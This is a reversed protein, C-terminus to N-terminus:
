DSGLRGTVRLWRWFALRKATPRDFGYYEEAIVVWGAPDAPTDTVVTSPAPQVNM